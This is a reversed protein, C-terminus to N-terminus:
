TLNWIIYHKYYRRIRYFQPLSHTHFPHRLSPASPSAHGLVGTPSCHTWTAYVLYKCSGRSFWMELSQRPCPNCVAMTTRSLPVVTVGPEGLGKHDLWGNKSNDLLWQKGLNSHIISIKNYFYFYSIYHSLSNTSPHPPPCVFPLALAITVSM